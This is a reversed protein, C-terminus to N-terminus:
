RMSSAIRAQHPTQPRPRPPPSAPSSPSSPPRDCAALKRYRRGLAAAVALWALSLVANFVAFQAPSAAFLEVGCWVVAAQGLDGLRWFLTDIATKGAYKAQADAPLILAHRATNSLSYNLSNEVLKVARVAAFVPIFALLGYGVAAVAPLVLIAGSVGVTRLIRAVLLVQIALGALNVWAYFDGYFAGIYAGADALSGAAALTAAHERVIRALLYEGTSNVGNLLVVFVALLRLYPDTLVRLLAGRLGGPAATDAPARSREPVRRRAIPTLPLTALLLAATLLMLGSAGLTAFLAKSALAGLWAGLSTGLAILVFLREGAEVSFLDAAVAWFQAVILVNFVGLWVFFEVGIRFGARDLIVFVPLNLALFATVVTAIWYHPVLRRFLAGYLPVVAMLVLAQLAVAYSRVEASAETLILAERAPKVLYYAFLLVFAQAVMVAVAVGEGARVPVIRSLGRELASANM